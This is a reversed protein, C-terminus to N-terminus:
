EPLRSSTLANCQSLAAKASKFPISCSVANTLRVRVLLPMVAMLSNNFLVVMVWNFRLPLVRVSREESALKILRVSRFRLLVPNVSVVANLPNVASCCNSRESFSMSDMMSNALKTSSVDSSKAPLLTCSTIGSFPKVCNTSNCSVPLLLKSQLLMKAKCPCNGLLAM